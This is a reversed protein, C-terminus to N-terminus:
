EPLAQITFAAKLLDTQEVGMPGFWKEYIADIEGSRFVQALARKGVLEFASENRPVMLAYPDYSLFDGVVAFADPTRSKAILGYLLIHDTSYADVRDTELALMGEAHDRVPLIKVDMGKKEVEAKIVRENTTGQALAVSKGDLDDVSQIGSGKRTLIKTGTIFTVPLYEVQEQRTLNNTTSGCELDITGNAMLAIRTKPNVPVFRVNLDRGVAKEVEEVVKMCLDISYGIPKQNEDLYAFPVSSERHGLVITGRDAIQALRGSLDQALASGNMAVTVIGAAFLRSALKM